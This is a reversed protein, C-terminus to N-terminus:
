ITDIHFGDDDFYAVNENINKVLEWGRETPLIESLVNDDDIFIMENNFSDIFYGSIITVGKAHASVTIKKDPSKNIRNIPSYTRPISVAKQINGSKIAYINSNNNENDPNLGFIYKGNVYSQLSIIENDKFEIYKYFQLNTYEESIGPPFYGSTTYFFYKYHVLFNSNSDDGLELRKINSIQTFVGEGNIILERNLYIMIDNEKGVVTLFNNTTTIASYEVISGSILSIKDSYLRIEAFKSGDNIRITQYNDTGTTKVIFLTEFTWGDPNSVDEEWRSGRVRFHSTTYDGFIQTDSLSIGIFYDRGKELTNPPITFSNRDGVLVTSYVNSSEYFTGIKISIYNVNKETPIFRKWRVHPTITSVDLPSKKGDISIDTAIFSSSIVRVTASSSYSASEKHKIEFRVEDGEQLSPKVQKQDNLEKKILNNVYWRININDDEFEDSIIYDAKLIDDPNPTSPLVKFNSVTVSISSVKVQPSTVRSGHEFGDSPYIDVNWIDNNQLFSSDVRTANDFQRQYSGNKFWRIVTGLELDGDGDSFDYNLQLTDTVSPQSPLIKANSVIPLSNYFFSFTSFDSQRGFEDIAFIQGYYTIGRQLPHGSYMWFLEQSIVDGTRVTDGVFDITGIKYDSTSIEINYSSQVIGGIDTTVGSDPDVSVKDTTDFEWDLTPYNNLVRIISTYDSVTQNNLKLILKLSM